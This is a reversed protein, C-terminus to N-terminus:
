RNQIVMTIRNEKDEALAQKLVLKNPL